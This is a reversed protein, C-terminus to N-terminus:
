ALFGYKLPDAADLVYRCYGTVFANAAIEPIIADFGDATVRDVVRLEFRTGIISEIRVPEGARISGRSHMAALWAASGTGCPSRDYNGMPTLVFSLVDARADREARQYFYVLNEYREKRGADSKSALV